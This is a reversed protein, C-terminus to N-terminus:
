DERDRDRRKSVKEIKTGQKGAKMLMEVLFSSKMDEERRRKKRERYKRTKGQM